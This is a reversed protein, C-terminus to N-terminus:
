ASRPVLADRVANRLLQVHELQEKNYNAHLGGSDVHGVANEFTQLLAPKDPFYAGLSVVLANTVEMLARAKFLEAQTRQLEDYLYDLKEDVTMTKGKLKM